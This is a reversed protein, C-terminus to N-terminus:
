DRDGFLVRGLRVMTAGAQIALGYDGSMGMSLQEMKIQSDIQSAKERIQAALEAAQQFVKLTESTTLNLPPITMLGRIKLNRCEYLDSLDQWLEAISWGSKNPDPLMKVQLLIQPTEPLNAALRNLRQALKLSDVSHIWQFRELAKQAKNAQLHGIFHWNIDTLDQLQEQKLEAEQIRSEGFDRMGARYAEQIAAVSMQKSVAILRVSPPLTQRIQFIREAITGSLPSFATM